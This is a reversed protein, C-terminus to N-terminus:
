PCSTSDITAVAAACGHARDHPVCVDVSGQCLGGSDTTATFRLTYVRGSGSGSRESRVQAISTGIGSADPCANGDGAGNTPESQLISDFRITVPANDPSTVGLITVPQLSHNPPWLTSVSPSATACSLPPATSKVVLSDLVAFNRAGEPATSEVSVTLADTTGEVAGAPVNLQVSVHISQGSTLAFDTVAIGGLFSHDDSATLHFTNAAGLNTVEFTYVTTAGPTLDQSPPASVRVTQPQTTKALVRQYHEGNTRTGTVYVLFPQTPLQIDGFFEAGSGGAELALGLTRLSAGTKDRLDFVATAFDGSLEAAGTITQGIVPFGPLGFYGQHGPRGATEVFDFRDLSLSSEGLVGFSFAEGSDLAASWTGPAPNLVTYVVGSSLTIVQVGPDTPQVATGDPRTLALSTAGSASFTVRTLTSDVPVTYTKPTGSLVDAVSLLDVANARVVADALRTIQGAEFGGLFFYQGGTDNAIRAYAPDFPLFVDAASALSRRLLAKGTPASTGASQGNGATQGTGTARLSLGFGGCSGFLLPYIKADKSEGLSSVNGALGADKADADTFTFLDAGDDVAGLAQLAGTMSLEPCDDGGDAFLSNIAAKFVDPDETVTLPGVSPDNFPALVYKLPEQDTDIRSDVIQVAQAQVQAIIGGMSGTTDISMALTPGVGLLLKLQRLTVKGKIDRIFAKTAERASSAASGHFSNHPSFTEFLTDKNIGGAPGPGSDFPGGHRCKSGISPVADEHGYYGSTLANTLLNHSCDEIATGDPLFILTCPACTPTTLGVFALPSAPDWIASNAGSGGSEVYDSHAYFDQITHLAQGLSQRAGSADEAQLASVVAQELEVVRAKGGNFNEGDFHKASHTQDEDVDANAKWIEDSAKKMSKTLRSTSFFEQDLEKVAQQTMDKHTTGVLGFGCRIGNNPCFAQAPASVLVALAALALWPWESRRVFRTTM